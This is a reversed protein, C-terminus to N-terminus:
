YSRGGAQSREHRARVVVSCSQPKQVAGGRRSVVWSQRQEKQLQTRRLTRSIPLWAQNQFPWAMKQLLRSGWTLGPIVTSSIVTIKYIWMCIWNKFKFSKLLLFTSLSCSQWTAYCCKFRTGPSHLLVASLYQMQQHENMSFFSDVTLDKFYLFYFLIVLFSFIWSQM